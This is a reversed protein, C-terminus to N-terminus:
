VHTRKAFWRSTGESERGCAVEERDDSEGEQARDDGEERRGELVFLSGLFDWRQKERTANWAM